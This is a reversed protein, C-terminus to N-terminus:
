KVGQADLWRRLTDRERIASAVNPHGLVPTDTPRKSTDLNHTDLMWLRGKVAERVFGLTEEDMEQRPPESLLRIAVDVASENGGRGPEGPFRDLIFSALRDIETSLQPEPEVKRLVACPQWWAHTKGQDDQRVLCAVREGRSSTFTEEVTWRVNASALTVVDGPKIDNRM